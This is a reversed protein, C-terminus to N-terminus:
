FNQKTYILVLSFIFSVFVMYDYINQLWICICLTFSIAALLQVSLKTPQTMYMYLHM